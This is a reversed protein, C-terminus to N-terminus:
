RASDMASFSTAIFLTCEEDKWQPDDCFSCNCNCQLKGEQLRSFECWNEQSIRGNDTTHPWKRADDLWNPRTNNRTFWECGFKQFCTLLSSALCSKFGLSLRDDRCKESNHHIAQKGVAHFLLHSRDLSVSCSCSM